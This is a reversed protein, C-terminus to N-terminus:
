NATTVGENAPLANGGNSPPPSAYKWSTPAWAVLWYAEPISRCLPMRRDEIVGFGGQNTFGYTLQLGCDWRGDQAITLQLLSAESDFSAAHVPRKRGRTDTVNFEVPAGYEGPVTGNANRRTQMFTRARDPCHAIWLLHTPDVEWGEVANLLRWNKCSQLVLGPVASVSTRRAPVVTYHYEKMWQNEETKTLKSSVPQQLDDMIQLLRGLNGQPMESILKGRNRLVAAPWSRLAAVIRWGHDSHTRYLPHAPSGEPAGLRLPVPPPMRPRGKAFLRVAEDPPPVVFGNDDIFAWRVYYRANKEIGRSIMVVARTQSDKGSRKVVGVIRCIQSSACQLVWDGSRYDRDLNNLYKPKPPAAQAVAPGLLVALMALLFPRM